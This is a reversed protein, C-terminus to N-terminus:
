FFYINIHFSFLYFPQRLFLTLTLSLLMGTNTQLGEAHIGPQHLYSNSDYVSTHFSGPTGFPSSYPLSSSEITPMRHPLLSNVVNGESEAMKRYYIQKPNANRHIKTDHSGYNECQHMEYAIASHPRKGTFKPMSTEDCSNPYIVGEHITRPLPFSISQPVSLSQESPYPWSSQLVEQSHQNPWSSIQHFNHPYNHSNYSNSSSRMNPHPFPQSPTRYTMSPRNMHADPTFYPRMRMHTAPNTHYYDTQAYGLRMPPKQPQNPIVYYEPKMPPSQNPSPAPTPASRANQIMLPTHGMSMFEPHGMYGIEPPRRHLFTSTQYSPTYPVHQVSVNQQTNIARPNLSQTFYDSIIEHSSSEVVKSPNGAETFLRLFHFGPFCYIIPEFHYLFSFFFFLWIHM